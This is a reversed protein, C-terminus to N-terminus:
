AAVAEELEAEVPPKWGLAALDAMVNIVAPLMAPRKVEPPLYQVLEPYTEKFQSLKKINAFASTLKARMEDLRETDDTYRKCLATLKKLSAPSLNHPSPKEVEAASSYHRFDDDRCKLISHGLAYGVNNSSISLWKHMSPDAWLDAIQAPAHKAIDADIVAKVDAQLEENSYVPLANIVANVVASKAAITFTASSM